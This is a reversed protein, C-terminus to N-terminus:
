ELEEIDANGNTKLLNVILNKKDELDSEVDIALQSNVIIKTIQNGQNRLLKDVDKLSENYRKNEKIFKNYLAEAEKIKSLWDSTYRLDISALFEELTKSALDRVEAIKEDIFSPKNYSPTSYYNLDYFRGEIRELLEQTFDEMKPRNRKIKEATCANLEVRELSEGLLKAWKHMKIEEPTGTLITTAMQEVGKRLADVKKVPTDFSVKLNNYDMGYKSIFDPNTGILEVNFYRKMDLYIQLGNLDFDTMLFIYLNDRKIKAELLVRIFHTVAFGGTNVGIFGKKYGKKYLDELVDFVLPKECVVMFFPTSVFKEVDKKNIIYARATSSNSTPNMYTAKEKADIQLYDMAFAWYEMNFAEAVAECFNKIMGSMSIYQQTPKGKIDLGEKMDGTCLYWVERKDVRPVVQNIQIQVFRRNMFLFILRGVESRTTDVVYWVEIQDFEEPIIVTGDDHELINSPLNVVLERVCNAM